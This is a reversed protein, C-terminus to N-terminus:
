RQNWEEWKSLHFFFFFLMQLSFTVEGFDCIQSLDPWTAGGGLHEAAPLEKAAYLSDPKEVHLNPQATRM